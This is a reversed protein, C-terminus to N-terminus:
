NNNISALSVTDFRHIITDSVSMIVPFSNGASPSLGPGRPDRDVVDGFVHDEIADRFM